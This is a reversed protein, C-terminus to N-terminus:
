RSLARAESEIDLERTIVVAYKYSDAVQWVADMNMQDDGLMCDSLQQDAQM